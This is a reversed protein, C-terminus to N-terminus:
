SNSEDSATSTKDKAKLIWEVIAAAAVGTVLGVGWGGLVDTPYHVGVVIRSLGISAGFLGIAITWPLPPRWLLIVVMAMSLGNAAHNSPLSFGSGCPELARVADMIHCPRTRAFLPKLVQHCLPDTLIVAM